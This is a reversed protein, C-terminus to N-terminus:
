LSSNYVFFFEDIIGVALYVGHSVFHQVMFPLPGNQTMHLYLEGGM